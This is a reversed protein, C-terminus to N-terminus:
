THPYTSDKHKRHCTLPPFLPRCPSVSACELFRSGLVLHAHAVKVIKCWDWILSVAPSAIYYRFSCKFQLQSKKNQHDAPNSVDLALACLRTFRIKLSLFPLPLSAFPHIPNLCFPFPLFIFDTIFTSCHHIETSGTHLRGLSTMTLTFTERHKSVCRATVVLPPHM